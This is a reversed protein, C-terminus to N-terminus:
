GDPPGPVPERSPRASPGPEGSNQGRAMSLARLIGKPCRMLVEVADTRTFLWHFCAQVCSLAWAGHGEPLIQAHAEWLGPQLQNFTVGGHEGLLVMVDDREIAETFDLPKKSAGCMWPYIDPHNVIENLRRADTQLELSALMKHLPSLYAVSTSKELAKPQAHVQM